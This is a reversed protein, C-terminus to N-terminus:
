TPWPVAYSVFAGFMLARKFKGHCLVSAPRDKIPEFEVQVKFSGEPTGEDRLVALDGTSLSHHLFIKGSM